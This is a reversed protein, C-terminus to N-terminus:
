KLSIVQYVLSVTETLLTPRTAEHSAWLVEAESLAFM